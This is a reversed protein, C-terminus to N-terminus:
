DEGTAVRACIAAYWDSASSLNHRRAAAIAEGAAKTDADDDCSALKAVLESYTQAEEQRQRCAHPEWTIAGDSDFTFFHEDGASLYRGDAVSIAGIGVATGVGYIPEFDTKTGYVFDMEGEATLVVQPIRRMTITPGVRVDVIEGAVAPGKLSDHVAISINLAPGGYNSERGPPCEEAEIWEEADRYIAPTTVFDVSVIHGIVVTDVSAAWECLPYAPDRDPTCHIPDEPLNSPLSEFSGPRGADASEGVEAPELEGALLRDAEQDRSGTQASCASIALLSVIGLATACPVPPLRGVQAELWKMTNM